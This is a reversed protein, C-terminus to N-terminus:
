TKPESVENPKANLVVIHLNLMEDHFVNLLLPQFLSLHNVKWFSVDGWVEPFSQHNGLPVGQIRKVIGNIRKM